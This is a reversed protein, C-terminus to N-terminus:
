QASLIRDTNQGHKKDQKIDQQAGQRHDQTQSANMSQQGEKNIKNQM